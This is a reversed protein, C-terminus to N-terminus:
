PTCRPCGAPTLRAKNVCVECDEAEDLPEFIWPERSVDKGCLAWDEDCCVLHAPDDTSTTDLEALPLTVATM